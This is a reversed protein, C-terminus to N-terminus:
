QEAPVGELDHVEARTIKVDLFMGAALDTRGQALVKVEGDVEPADRYSRGKWIGEV